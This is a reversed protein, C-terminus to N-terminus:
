INENFYIKSGLMKIKMKTWLFCCFINHTYVSFVSFIYFYSYLCIVPRLFNIGYNINENMRRTALLFQKIGFIQLCECFKCFKCFKLSFTTTWLFKLNNENSAIYIKHIIQNNEINMCSSPHSNTASLSFKACLIAIFFGQFDIVDFTLHM